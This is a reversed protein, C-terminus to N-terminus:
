CHSELAVIICSKDFGLVGRMDEMGPRRLLQDRGQRDGGGLPDPEGVELAPGIEVEGAPQDVGVEAVLVRLHDLGDPTCRRLHAGESGAEGVLGAGLGGPEDGLLSGLAHVHHEEGVTACLCGLVGDPQGAQVRPPM